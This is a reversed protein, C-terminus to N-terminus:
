ERERQPFEDWTRGDLLRGTAKKGRLCGSQIPGGADPRREGRILRYASAVPIQYAVALVTGHEGAAYRERMTRVQEDTLMEFHEAAHQRRTLLELNSLRNDDKNENKHHLTQGRTPRPRGSSVWVVLHEYAYGNPDALPHDTGVRIKTYGHSSIIRDSNWRVHDAGRKGNGWSNPNSGRPM